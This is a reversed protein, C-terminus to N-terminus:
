IDDEDDEEETDAGDDADEDDGLISGIQGELNTIFDNFLSDYDAEENQNAVPSSMDTMGKNINANNLEDAKPDASPKMGIIQRIENSSLIENRTFKDAMESIESVSVLRFPDKFLLISQKQTRATKTLFKRKMEEAIATMIPEITRNNYNLMTKEDATGDMITQTIGLQSYLMSTLYEIQKMLNNEIPRNLQTIRETGDTYAIGYKSSMLQEEIDKRRAEAQAKRADTKIIYPLQIILDMKGSGSQEDISDLLNLKRILRQLTSNPENMISYFPNEIIATTAKPVFIDEKNGTRENYVRVKITTPHWELIQGTRLSNIDFSGSSWPNVTTDVPVIAVCGEDMMSMVADQILARGTQDINASLTLCENLGSDITSIYRNNDDLRVHNIDINSADVAIRNYVSTIISKENGRSLRPRDPRYTDGRGFNWGNTPDRNLFANWAQKLRSGISMEM